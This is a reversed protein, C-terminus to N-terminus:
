ITLTMTLADEDNDSYYRPRVGAKEFGVRQYLGIAALNSRRVELWAEKVGRARAIEIMDDLLARGYGCRRARPLVAINHLQIGDGLLWFHSFGCVSEGSRPRIVRLVAWRNRLEDEFSERSWSTPFSVEAIRYVSDVDARTMPLIIPSISSSEAIM